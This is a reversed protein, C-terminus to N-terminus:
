CGISPERSEATSRQRIPCGSSRARRSDASLDASSRFDEATSRCLVPEDRGGASLALRGPGQGRGQPATGGVPELVADSRRSSQTRHRGSARRLVAECVRLGPRLRHRQRRTDDVQYLMQRIISSKGSGTDGVILFHKNEADRPIRLPRKSDNTTIGIGDGAVAKTFQRPSVLIPGKLRRGYRLEKRRRIDKRISFPLQLVFAALGLMLQTNFLRDLFTTM